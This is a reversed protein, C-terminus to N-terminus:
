DRDERKAENIFETMKNASKVGAATEVGSSVDVAWPRVHQVARRVNHPGLGGALILPRPLEPISDWDFTHGTGGPAGVEHSDLLLAAADPYDEIHQARGASGMALAKIYPLGFQRCFSGAEGGHFQLLSLPVEELVRRVDGEDQDMFLGVRAVFAPVANVLERAQECDLCRTSRPTFVFGLADAGAGVAAAVDDRRTLGCIKVRVPM